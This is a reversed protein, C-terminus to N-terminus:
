SFISRGLQTGAGQLLGSFPSPGEQQAIPQFQSASLPAGLLGALAPNPLQNLRMFEQQQGSLGAQTIGRQESGLLAARVLADLQQGPAQLQQQGLQGVGLINQLAQQQRLDVFGARQGALDRELGTTAQSFARNFASSRLADQGIFQEQLAPLQQEMLARRAPDAVAQEFVGSAQMAAQQPTQAFQDINQGVRGFLQNLIPSGLTAGLTPFQAGEFVQQQLQSPGATIQGGFPTPQRQVEATAQQSLVRLFEAQEPTMLNVNEIDLQGSQDTALGAAVPLLNGLFSGISSLGGTATQGTQGAIQQANQSGGILSTAVNGLQSSGAGGGVANALSGILGPTNGTAATVLAPNALASAAQASSMGVIGSTGAPVGTAAGHGVLGSVADSIPAGLFAGGLGGLLASVGVDQGSIGAGLAAGAAGGLASAVGTGLAGLAMSGAISSGAASGLLGGAIPAIFGM